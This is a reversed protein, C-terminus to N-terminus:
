DPGNRGSRSMKQALRMKAQSRKLRSLLALKENLIPNIHALWDAPKPFTPYKHNKILEKTAFEVLQAPYESLIECYAELAEQAPTPMQLTNCLKAIAVAATRGDCRTQMAIELTSIARVLDPADPNCEALESVLASESM